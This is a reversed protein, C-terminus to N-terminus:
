LISECQRVQISSFTPQQRMQNTARRLEAALEVRDATLALAQSAAAPM